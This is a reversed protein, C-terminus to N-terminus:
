PITAAVLHYDNTSGEVPNFCLVPRAFPLSFNLFARSIFRQRVFNSWMIWWFMVRRCLPVGGHYKKLFLFRCLTWVLLVCAFVGCAAPSRVFFCMGSGVLSLGPGAGSLSPECRRTARDRSTSLRYPWGWVYAVFSLHFGERSMCGVYAVFLCLVM